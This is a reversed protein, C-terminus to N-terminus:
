PRQWRPLTPAVGRFPDRRPPPQHAEDSDKPCRVKSSAISDLTQPPAPTGASDVDRCVTRTRAQVSEVVGTFPDRRHSPQQVLHTVCVSVLQERAMEDTSQAHAHASALLTLLAFATGYRYRRGFASISM